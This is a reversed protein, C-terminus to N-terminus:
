PAPAPSQNWPRLKDPNLVVWVQGVRDGTLGLSIVAAVQDDHRVVLGTRGNVSQNRVTTRPRGALLAVLSRAVQGSGHVPRVLARVKGGGDFVATADPCLLSMLLRVDEAACAQRVATALADHRLPSGPRARWLRRWRRARATLVVCEPRGRGVVEAVAPPAVGFANDGVFAPTRESDPGAGKERGPQALRALCIGDATTALWARPTTIGARVTDSLAYWRRYTEVVVDEAQDGGMMRHAVDLLHRREDLLEAIPVADGAYDM